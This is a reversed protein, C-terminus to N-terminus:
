KLLYNTNATLNGTLFSKSAKLARSEGMLEKTVGSRNIYNSHFFWTKAPGKILFGTHFDLGVIFVSNAPAEAIYQELKAFSTFRKIQTCTAQILVSSPEQALRVRNIKFGMDELITTIFYGCAISGEGAKRSTGNFDWTTGKWYLPMQTAVTKYLLQQIGPINKYGQLQHLKKRTNILFAPYALTPRNEALLQEGAPPTAAASNNQKQTCSFFLLSGMLLIAANRTM